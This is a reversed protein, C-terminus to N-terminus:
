RRRSTKLAACCNARYKFLLRTDVFWDLIMQLAKALQAKPAPWRISGDEERVSSSLHYEPIEAKPKKPPSGSKTPSAKRKMNTAYTRVPLHCRTLPTKRPFLPTYVAPQIAKRIFDVHTTTIYHCLGANWSM